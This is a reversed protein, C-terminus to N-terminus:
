RPIEAYFVQRSDVETDVEEPKVLLRDGLITRQSIEGEPDTVLFEAPHVFVIWKKNERSREQLFGDNRAPGFMGGSPCLLYDAGDRCIGKVLKPERRDACIMIGVRGHKTAFSPMTTGARNRILEHQLRHKRYKGLLEGEPGILVTVNYRLDGDAETMGAALHINLEDALSALKRYYEGSPIAEGLSRYTELPISKDAIAYGDLFCETTCIIEAGNAAAERIMPEVRRYNEGKDGRVWKLVIGAVKVNPSKETEAPQEEAMIISANLFVGGLVGLILRSRM